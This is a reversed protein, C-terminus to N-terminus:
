RRRATRGVPAAAAVATIWATAHDGARGLLRAVPLTRPSATRRQNALLMATERSM